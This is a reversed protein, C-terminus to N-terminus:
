IICLWLMLLMSVHSMLTVLTPAVSDINGVLVAAASDADETDSGDAM